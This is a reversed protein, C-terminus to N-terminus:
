PQPIYPSVKIKEFNPAIAQSAKYKEVTHTFDDKMKVLESPLHCCDPPVVSFTISRVLPKKGTINTEIHVVHEKTRCSYTKLHTKADTSPHTVVREHTSMYEWFTLPKLLNYHLRDAKLIPLLDTSFKCEKARIMPMTFLTVSLVLIQYRM